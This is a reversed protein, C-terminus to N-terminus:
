PVIMGTVMDPSPSPEDPADALMFAEDELPEDENPSEFVFERETCVPM